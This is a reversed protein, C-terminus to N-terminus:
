HTSAARDDLLAVCELVLAAAVQAAHQVREDSRGPGATRSAIRLGREGHQRDPAREGGDGDPEEPDREDSDPKEPGDDDPHEDDEVGTEDDVEDAEGGALLWAKHDELCVRASEAVLLLEEAPPEYLDAPAEPPPPGTWLDDLDGVVQAGSADIADRVRRNWRGSLRIGRRHLRISTEEEARLLLHRVLVRKVQRVGRARAQDGLAVNVLRLFETSEHGLSTHIYSTPPACLHPDVGLVGAFRAWLLAPDSGKPPVTVVHTREPGVLPSWVELMRPINQTRHLLRAARGPNPADPARDMAKVLRRLPVVGAMRCSTQWQAPVAYRADRVTVVVHVEHDPFAAVVHQAQDEDAYSLWEMSFVSTPGPHDRMQGAIHEWMGVAAPNRPARGAVEAMVDMTALTQQEWVEGPWLIGAAALPERNDEMLHQLYTTGTKMAGIHLIVRPKTPGPVAASSRRGLSVRALNACPSPGGGAVVVDDQAESVGPGSAM